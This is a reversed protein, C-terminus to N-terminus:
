EQTASDAEALLRRGAGAPLRGGVPECGFTCPMEDIAGWQRCVLPRVGYVSCRGEATLAPCSPIEGTASAENLADAIVAYPNTGITVGHRALIDVEVQSAAIPGCSDTCLGRCLLVPVKAWVDRIATM